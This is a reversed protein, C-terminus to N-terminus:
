ASPPPEYGGATETLLEAFTLATDDRLPSRHGPHGGPANPRGASRPLSPLFDRCRRTSSGSRRATTAVRERQRRSRASTSRGSITGFPPPSTSWACFCTPMTSAASGRPACRWASASGRLSRPGPRRRPTLGRSRSSSASRSGSRRTRGSPISVRLGAKSWRRAARLLRRWRGRWFRRWRARPRRARITSWLVSATTPSDRTARRRCRGPTPASNPARPGAPRESRRACTALRARSRVELTSLYVHDSEEREQGPVALGTLPVVGVSPRLGFVGCFSAPIRISGVLDSGHEVFAFGMAVAAASGGSSGGPTRSGEWPNTTLGYVDNFTQGLDGLM